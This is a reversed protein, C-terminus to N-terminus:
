IILVQEDMKATKATSSRFKSQIFFIMYKEIIQAIKTYYERCNKKYDQLRKM